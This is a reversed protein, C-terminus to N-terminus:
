DSLIEQSRCAQGTIPPWGAVYVGRSSASVAHGRSRPPGSDLAHWLQLDPRISVEMEAPWTAEAMSKTAAKRRLRSTTARSTMSGQWTCPRALSATVLTDSGQLRTFKM